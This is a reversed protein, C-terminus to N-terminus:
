ESGELDQSALAIADLRRELEAVREFLAAKEPDVCDPQGTLKDFEEAAEVARRFSDLLARLQEPTWGRKALDPAVPVTWPQPSTNPATWQDHNPIYPRYNDIVLSVWCM